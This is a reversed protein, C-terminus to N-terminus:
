YKQLRSHTTDAPTLCPDKDKGAHTNVECGVGIDQANGKKEM